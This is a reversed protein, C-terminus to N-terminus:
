RSVLGDYLRERRYPEGTALNVTGQPQCGRPQQVASNRQREADALVNLTQIASAAKKSAPSFPNTRKSRYESLVRIAFEIDTMAELEQKKFREM